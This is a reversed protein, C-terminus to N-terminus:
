SSFHIITPIENCEDGDGSRTEKDDNGGGNGNWLHLTATAYLALM